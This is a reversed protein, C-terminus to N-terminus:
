VLQLNSLRYVFLQWIWAGFGDAMTRFVEIAGPIFILACMGLAVTVQCCVRINKLSFSDYTGYDTSTLGFLTYVLGHEHSIFDDFLVFLDLLRGVSGGFPRSFALSLLLHMGIGMLCFFPIGLVYYFTPVM